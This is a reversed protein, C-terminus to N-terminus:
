QVSKELREKRSEWDPMVATLMKFFAKGHHPHKLHCLEHAIVYELCVSPTKILDPNLLITGDPTCSGWRKTMKRIQIRPTELGYARILSDFSELTRAFREKAKVRYWANMARQVADPDDPQKVTVKFFRGRLKVTTRDGNFIKLRYQRGLYRHTEGSKWTREVPKPMWSLFRARQNVVWRARKRVRAHIESEGAAVPAVVTVRLDPHVTISLSRRARRVLLYEVTEGGYTLHHATTKM